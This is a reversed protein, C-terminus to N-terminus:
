GFLDYDGKNNREPNSEKPKADFKVRKKHKKSGLHELWHNELIEENCHKCIIRNTKKAMLVQRDQRAMGLRAAGHRAMGLRAAGHRAAGHRAVGQWVM